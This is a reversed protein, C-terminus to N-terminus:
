GGQRGLIHCETRMRRVAEVPAKPTDDELELNDHSSVIPHYLRMEHFITACSCDLSYETDSICGLQALHQRVSAPLEDHLASCQLPPTKLSLMQFLIGPLLTRRVSPCRGRSNQPRLAKFALILKVLSTNVLM